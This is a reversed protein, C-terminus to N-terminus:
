NPCFRLSNSSLKGITVVGCVGEWDLIGSPCIDLRDCLDNDDDDFGSDLM